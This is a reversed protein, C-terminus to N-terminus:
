FNEELKERDNKEAEDSYLPTIDLPAVLGESVIEKNEKVDKDKENYIEPILIEDKQRSAIIEDLINPINEKPLYLAKAITNNGKKTHYIFHYNELETVIKLAENDDKFLKYADESGAQFFSIVTGIQSRVSKSIDIDELNQTAFIFHLGYKRGTRAINVVLKNFIENEAYSGNFMSQVEDIILVKYPIKQTPNLKNYINIDDIELKNFLEARKTMENSFERLMDIAVSQNHMNYFLKKCNPHKKFKNFEVGGENYDMLYLEIENPKYNKAIETIIVNLLNSKGTGTKGAIFASFSMSRQGLSFYLTERGVKGIPVSLFDQETDEEQMSSHQELLEKAIAKKDVFLAQFTSRNYLEQHPILEKEVSIRDNKFLIKPFADVIPAIFKKDPLDDKRYFAIVYIGSEMAMDVFNKIRRVFHTEGPFDPLHMLVLRYVEHAKEMRNYDSLTPTEASIFDHQRRQALEELEEFLSEAKRQTYAVKYIGAKELTALHLFRKKGFDFLDVKMNGLPVTSLMSLTIQEIFDIAKDESANDYEVVVGGHRTDALFPVADKGVQMDGIYMGWPFEYEFASM